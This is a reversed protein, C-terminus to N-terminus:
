LTWIKINYVQIPHSKSGETLNMYADFAIKDAHHM